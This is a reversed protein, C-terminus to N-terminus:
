QRYLPQEGVQGELVAFRERVLLAGALKAPGKGGERLGLVGVAVRHRVAVDDRAEAAKGV